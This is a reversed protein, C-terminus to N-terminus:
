MVIVSTFDLMKGVENVRFLIEYQGHRGNMMGTGFNTSNTDGHVLVVCDGWGQRIKVGKQLTRIGTVMQDDVIITVKPGGIQDFGISELQRTFGLISLLCM